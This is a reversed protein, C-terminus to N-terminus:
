LEHLLKSVNSRSISDQNLGDLDHGAPDFGHDRMVQHNPSLNRHNNQIQNAQAAYEVFAPDQAPVPYMQGNFQNPWGGYSGYYQYAQTQYNVAPYGPVQPVESLPAFYSMQFEDGHANAAYQGAQQSDDQEYSPQNRFRDYYRPAPRPQAESVRIPQQGLLPPDRICEALARQQESHDGMRM